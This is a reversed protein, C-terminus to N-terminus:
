KHEANAGAADFVARLIAGFIGPVKSSIKQLFSIVANTAVHILPLWELPITYSTKVPADAVAEQGFATGVLVFALMVFLYRFAKKMSAREQQKMFARVMLAEM